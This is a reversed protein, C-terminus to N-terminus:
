RAKSTLLWVLGGIAIIPLFNGTIKEIVSQNKVTSLIKSAEAPATGTEIMNTYMKVRLRDFDTLWYTMTSIAGAVVVLPLVIPLVGLGDLGVYNKVSNLMKNASDIAATTTEITSKIINAKSLLATTEKGIDSEAPFKSQTSKLFDMSDVFTKAKAKFENLTNTWSFIEDVDGLGNLNKTFLDFYEQNITPNTEQIYPYIKRFTGLDYQKINKIYNAKKAYPKLSKIYMVLDYLKRNGRKLKQLNQM